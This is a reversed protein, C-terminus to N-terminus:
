YCDPNALKWQTGQQHYRVPQKIWYRIPTGKRPMQAFESINSIGQAPIANDGCVFFAAFAAKQHFRRAFNRSSSSAM